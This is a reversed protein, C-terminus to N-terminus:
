GHALLAAYCAQKHRTAVDLGHRALALTQARHGMARARAPDDLLGAIAAAAGDVDNERLLCGTEGDLVIERHWEVDYSVLAAGAAAAEILSVGGM